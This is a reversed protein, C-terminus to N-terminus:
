AYRKPGHGCSTVIAVSLSASCPLTIESAAVKRDGSHQRRTVKAQLDCDFLEVSAPPQAHTGCVEHLKQVDFIRCERGALVPKMQQGITLMSNRQLRIM